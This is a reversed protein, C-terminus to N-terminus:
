KILTYTEARAELAKRLAVEGSTTIGHQMLQKHLEDSIM